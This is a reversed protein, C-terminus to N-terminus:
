FSFGASMSITNTPVLGAELVLFVLKLGLSMQFKSGEMFFKEGASIQIDTDLVTYNYGLSLFPVIMYSNHLSAMINGGLSNISLYPFHQVQHYSLLVTTIFSPAFENEWGAGLGFAQISKGKLPLVFGRAMLRIPGAVSFKMGAYVFPISLLSLSADSLVGKKKVPAFNGQIGLSFPDGCLPAFLGTNLISAFLELVGEMQERAFDKSQNEIRTLNLIDEGARLFSLFFVVMIIVVSIKKM